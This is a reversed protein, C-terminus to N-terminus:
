VVKKEKYLERYVEKIIRIFENINNFMRITNKRIVKLNAINLNYNNLYTKIFKFAKDKLYLITFLVKKSETEFSNNNHSIYIQLKTIFKKLKLLEGKYKSPVVVKTTRTLL